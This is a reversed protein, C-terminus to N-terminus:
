RPMIGASAVLTDLGKQLRPIWAPRDGIKPAGHQGTQHCKACQNQVITKSTRMVAPTGGGVPEVWRGGSQNVMYVIAREIEIDSVGSAGGHAPMKRIGKLAHDTLATLGQSSRGAWAKADGIRPAKDKGAVHCSGCVADVVDKGLREKRQADAAGSFASLTAFLAIAPLLAWAPGAGTQTRM